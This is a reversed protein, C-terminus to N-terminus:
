PPLDKLFLVIDDRKSLIKAYSRLEPTRVGIMSERDATPILKSQFERYSEDRCSYLHDRIEDVIMVLRRKTNQIEIGDRDESM